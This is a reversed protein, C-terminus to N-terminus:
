IALFPTHKNDSFVKFNLLGVGKKFHAPPL